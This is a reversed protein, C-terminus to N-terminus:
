VGTGSSVCCLVRGGSERGSVVAWALTGGPVTHHAGLTGAANLVLLPRWALPRARSGWVASHLFGSPSASLLTALESSVELILDGPVLGEPGKAPSDDEVEAVFVGHLNGGCLHVGLELQSKKIFVVRPEPTKKNADGVM